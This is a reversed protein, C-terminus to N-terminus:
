FVKVMDKKRKLGFKHGLRPFFCKTCNDWNIIFRFRFSQNTCNIQSSDATYTTVCHQFYLSVLECIFIGLSALHLDVHLTFENFLTSPNSLPVKHWGRGVMVVVVVVVPVQLLARLFSKQSLKIYLCKPVM